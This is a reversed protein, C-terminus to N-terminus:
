EGGSWSKRPSPPPFVNALLSEYWFNGNSLCEKLFDRDWLAYLTEYIVTETFEATWGPPLDGVILAKIEDVLQIVDPGRDAMTYETITFQLVHGADYAKAVIKAGAFEMYNRM